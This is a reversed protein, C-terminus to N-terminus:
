AVASDRAWAVVEISRPTVTTGALPPLPAVEVLGRSHGGRHDRPNTKMEIGDPVVKEDRIKHEKLAKEISYSPEGKGKIDDPHYQVGPWRKYAGGAATNNIMMNDGEEYTYLRGNRDYDGPAYAAVGDLPRHYQVSDIIREKPTARLAEANSDKLAALPSNTTNNRAFLTADYPGGHHYSGLGSNDLTDITDPRIHHKRTM